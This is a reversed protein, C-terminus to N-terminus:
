TYASKALRDTNMVQGLGVANGDPASAHEFGADAAGVVDRKRGQRVEDERAIDRRAFAIPLAVGNRRTDLDRRVSRDLDGIAYAETVFDIMIIQAVHGDTLLRESSPI